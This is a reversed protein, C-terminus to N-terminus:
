HININAINTKPAVKTTTSLHGTKAGAFHGVSLQQSPVYGFLAFTDNRITKNMFLYILSPLGHATVWMLSAIYIIAESIRFFQMYIYILGTAINVISIALVQLFSMKQALSTRNNGRTARIFFVTTFVIYSSSLGFTVLWNHFTQIPNNYVLGFDDIYGVHPNFFWAFYIGSFLIPKTYFLVYLGYIMPPLMWLWARKGNYLREGWIPSIVEVCRNVALIIDGSSEIVWFFFGFSGALYIFTPHSCFVAGTIAFYGHILACVPLCIIDVIGIFLMFKYCAQDLHKTISYICPLYLLEYLIFMIVFILGWVIDQRKEIPVDEVKYASCNYLKEYGNPDFLFLNM